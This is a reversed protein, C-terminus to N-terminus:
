GARERKNSFPPSGSAVIGPVGGVRQAGHHSLHNGLYLVAQLQTLTALGRHSLWTVVMTPRFSPPPPIRVVLGSVRGLPKLVTEVIGTKANVMIAGAGAFVLAFTVIAEAVM